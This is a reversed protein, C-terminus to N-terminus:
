VSAKELISSIAKAVGSNTNTDTIYDANKKLAESGNGMAVGTGAFRIMEIDNDNDGICFIEEKNIHLKESLLKVASGKNCDKKMIELFNKDSNVVEFRNFECLSEKIKKFIEDDMENVSIKLIEKKTKIIEALIDEKNVSIRNMGKPVNKNNFSEKSNTITYTETNFYVISDFGSLVSYILEVEEYDFCTKSIVNDNTTSKIYSGNLAIVHGNIGLIDELHYRASAYSRGTAIAISIGDNYAKSIVKKNESSVEKNEDLLTGDMDICILKYM